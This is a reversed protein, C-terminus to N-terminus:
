TCSKVQKSVQKINSAQIETLIYQKNYNVTIIM